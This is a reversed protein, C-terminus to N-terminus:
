DDDLNSLVIGYDEAVSEMGEKFGKVFADDLTTKTKEVVKELKVDVIPYLSALTLTGNESDADIFENFAVKAAERAVLEVIPDLADSIVEKFNLM